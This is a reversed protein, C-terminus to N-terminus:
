FPVWNGNLMSLTAPAQQRPGPKFLGVIMLDNIANSFGGGRGSSYGWPRVSHARLVAQLILALAGAIRTSQKGIGEATDAAVAWICTSNFSLANTQKSSSGLDGENRTSFYIDPAQLERECVTWSPAWIECTLFHAPKGSVLQGDDSHTWKRSGQENWEIRGFSISRQNPSGPRPGLQSSRVAPRDRAAQMLPDLAKSIDTWISHVWPPSVAPNGLLVYVDYERDHFAM